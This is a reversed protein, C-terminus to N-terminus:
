HYWTILPMLQTDVPQRKYILRLRKAQSPSKTIPLATRLKPKDAAISLVSSTWQFGAGPDIKQEGNQRNPFVHLSMSEETDQVAPRTVFCVWLPPPPVYQWMRGRDDRNRFAKIM